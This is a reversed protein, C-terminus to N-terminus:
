IDMANEKEGSVFYAIHYNEDQDHLDILKMELIVEKFQMIDFPVKCRDGAEITIDYQPMYFSYDKINLGKKNLHM